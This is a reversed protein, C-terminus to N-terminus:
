VNQYIDDTSGDLEGNAAEVRTSNGRATHKSKELNRRSYMEQLVDRFQLKKSSNNKDTTCMRRHVTTKCGCKKLIFTLIVLSYVVLLVLLSLLIHGMMIDAQERVVLATGTGVHQTCCAEARGTAAAACHYIGSDNGQLSNIQLSAGSLNYKNDTLNLRYHVSEKFVFWEYRLDEASCDVSITCPLLAAEGTKEWITKDPQSVCNEARNMSEVAPLHTLLLSLWLLRDMETAQCSTFSRM